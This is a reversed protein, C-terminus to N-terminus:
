KSSLEEQKELIKKITDSKRDSVSAEIGMGNAIDVVDSENLKGLSSKTFNVRIKPKSLNDNIIKELREEEKFMEPTIEQNEQEPPPFVDIIYSEGLKVSLADKETRVTKVSM